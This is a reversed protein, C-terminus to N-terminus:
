SGPAPETTPEAAGTAGAEAAEAAERLARELKAESEALLSSQALEGGFPVLEAIVEDPSATGTTGTVFVASRGPRLMSRVRDAFAAEKGRDSLRAGLGVAGGAIVLGVVPLSLTAGLVLGWFAAKGASKVAHRHTSVVELEGDDRARVLAADQVKVRGSKDLEQVKEFVRVETDHDPYVMVLIRQPAEM